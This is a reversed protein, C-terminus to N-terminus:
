AEQARAPKEATLDLGEVPEVKAGKVTLAQPILTFRLTKDTLVEGDLQYYFPQSSEVTINRGKM